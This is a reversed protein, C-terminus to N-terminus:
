SCGKDTPREEDPRGAKHAQEITRMREEDEERLSNIEADIQEKTRPVHGGAKLDAWIQNMMVWFRDPKEMISM